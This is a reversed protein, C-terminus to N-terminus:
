TRADEDFPSGEHAGVARNLKAQPAAGPKAFAASACVWSWAPQGPRYCRKGCASGAAPMATRGASRSEMFGAQCPTRAEAAPGKGPAGSALESCGLSLQAVGKASMFSLRFIVLHPDFDPCGLAALCCAKRSNTDSREATVATWLAECTTASPQGSTVAKVRWERM